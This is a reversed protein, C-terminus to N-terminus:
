KHAGGQRGPQKGKPPPAARQPPEGARRQKPARQGPDACGPPEGDVEMAEAVTDEEGAQAAKDRKKARASRSGDCVEMPEVQPPAAPSARGETIWGGGLAAGGGAAVGQAGPVPGPAALATVDAVARTAFLTTDRGGPAAGTSAADAGVSEAACPLAPSDSAGGPAPAPAAAVGAAVGAQPASHATGLAGGEAAPPAAGGQAGGAEGAIAAGASAGAAADDARTSTMGGAGHPTAPGAAGEAPVVPRPPAGGAPEATGAPVAPAAAPPAARACLGAIGPAPPPPHPHPTNAPLQPAHQGSWPGAVAPAAAPAAALPRLGAIGPAPPPPHPHPTNAPVEPAHPGTWPGAAAQGRSDADGRPQPAGGTVAAAGAETARPGREGTGQVAGGQEGGRRAGSSGGAATVRPRKSAPARGGDSLGREGGSLGGGRGGRRGRAGRRGVVTFGGAPGAGQAAGGGIQVTAHAAGPVGADGRRPAHPGATQAAGPSAGQGSRPRPPLEGLLQAALACVDDAKVEHTVLFRTTLPVDNSDVAPAQAPKPEPLRRLTFGDCVAPAQQESTVKVYAGTQLTDHKRDGHWEVLEMGSEQLLKLALATPLATKATPEASVCFRVAPGARRLDATASQPPTRPASAPGYGRSQECRVMAHAALTDRPFAPAGESCAVRVGDLSRVFPLGAASLRAMVDALVGPLQTLIRYCPGMLSSVTACEPAVQGKAHASERHIRALTEAMAPPTAWLDKEYLIFDLQSTPLARATECVVGRPHPRRSALVLELATTAGPKAEYARVAERMHSAFDLPARRPQGGGARQAYSTGAGGNGREPASAAPQSAAGGGGTHPAAAAGDGGGTGTGAASLSQAPNPMGGALGALGPVPGLAESGRVDAWSPGGSAGTRAQQASAAGIEVAVDV